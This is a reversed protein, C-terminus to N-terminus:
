ILRDRTVQVYEKVTERATLVSYKGHGLAKIAAARDADTAAELRAKVTFVTRDENWHGILTSMPEPIKRDKKAAAPAAPNTGTNVAPDTGPNTAPTTGPNTEEPM